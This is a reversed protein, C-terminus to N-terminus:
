CLSCSCCSCSSSSRFVCNPCHRKSSPTSKPPIPCVKNSSKIGGDTLVYSSDYCSKKESQLKWCLCSPCKCSNWSSCSCSPRCSPCKRCCSWISPFKCRCRPWKCRCCGKCSLCNRFCRPWVLCKFSCVSCKCSFCSPCGCLPCWSSEKKIPLAFSPISTESKDSRFNASRSDGSYETHAEVQSTGVTAKPVDYTPEDIRATEGPGVDVDISKVVDLNKNPKVVGKRTPSTQKVKVLESSRKTDCNTLVETSQYLEQSQFLEWPKYSEGTECLEESKSLEGSKQLEGSRYLDVGIRSVHDRSFSNNGIHISFLSDNSAVSWETPTSPRSFISSPIRNPDYDGPREMVQVMPSLTPSMHPVLSEYTVDSFQSTSEPSGHISEELRYLAENSVDFKENKYKTGANPKPIDNKVRFKPLTQPNFFNDSSSDSSSSSVTDSSNSSKLTTRNQNTETDQRSSSAQDSIVNSALHTFGVRNNNSATTNAGGYDM